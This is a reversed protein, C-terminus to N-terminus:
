LFFLSTHGCGFSFLSAQYCGVYLLLAAVAVLPFGGLFKYYASLLFLSLAQLVFIHFASYANMFKWFFFLLSLSLSLLTRSLLLMCVIGSVGGILLPRRGLDDVKLVAIWTMALQLLGTLLLYSNADSTPSHIATPV